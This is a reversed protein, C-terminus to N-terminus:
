LTQGLTSSVLPQIFEDIDPHDADLHLVIAGNKYKGGRGLTENLSSYNDLHYLGLRLLASPRKDKQISNQYISRVRSWKRSAFRWAEIGNESELENDVVFVRALYPSDVVLTM